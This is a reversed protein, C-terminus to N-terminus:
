AHRLAPHQRHPLKSQPKALLRLARRLQATLTPRLPESDVSGPTINRRPPHMLTRPTRVLARHVGSGDKVLGPRRERAPEPGNIAHAVVLLRDRRHLERFLDADAILRRPQHLVLDALGHGIAVAAVGQAADDLHVFAVLEASSM